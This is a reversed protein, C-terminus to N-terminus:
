TLTHPAPSSSLSIKAAYKHNFRDLAAIATALFEREHTTLDPHWIEFILVARPEDSHNWAEHEFSDDFILSEGPIWERTENGIRIACHTPIILPLHVALKYNALGYHSPIHTHPELISFFVEPAHGQMRALPLADINVATEPCAAWHEPLRNGNWYLHYASWKRSRNLEAWPTERGEPVEVYPRLVEPHQLLHELETRIERTHQELAQLEPFRRRDYFPRVEIGPYHCFMPRQLPDTYEPDVTHLIHALAREARILGDNDTHAKRLDALANDLFRTRRQHLQGAARRVIHAIRPPANAALQLLNGILSEAQRYAALAEDSRGLAQLVDGRQIWIIALHPNRVLAHDFALLAGKLFGRARLTIGLNQHLEARSPDARIAREIFHQAQELRGAELARSALYQLAPVHRPAAKLLQLFLTEADAHNGASILARANMEILRIQEPPEISPPLEAPQLPEAM